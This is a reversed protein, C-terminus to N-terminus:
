LIIQINNFDKIIQLITNKEKLYRPSVHIILFNTDPYKQIIPKIDEWHLHYRERAESLHEPLFFTCEIIINKYLNFPLTKLSSHDLDTAYLIEHNFSTETINTTKKLEALQMGTLNKFENKLKKTKTIIGYSVCKVSHKVPFQEIIVNNINNNWVTLKSLKNNNPQLSVMQFFCNLYKKLFHELFIPCIINIKKTNNQIIDTIAKIHDAHGHTILLHNIDKNHFFGADLQIKLDQIIIGTQQNGISIGEINYKGLKIIM